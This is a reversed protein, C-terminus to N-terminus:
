LLYRDSFRRESSGSKNKSSFFWNKWYDHALLASRVIFMNEFIDNRKLVFSQYYQIFLDNNIQCLCFELSFFNNRGHIIKRKEM